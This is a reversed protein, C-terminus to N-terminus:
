LSERPPDRCQRARLVFSFPFAQDGTELRIEDSRERGATLLDQRERGRAPIQRPKKRRVAAALDFVRRDLFTERGADIDAVLFRRPRLRLGLLLMSERRREPHRDQKRRSRGRVLDRRRNRVGLIQRLSKLFVFARLPPEDPATDPAFRHAHPNREVRRADPLANRERSRAADMQASLETRRLPVTKRQSCPRERKEDHVLPASPLSGTLVFLEQELDCELERVFSAENRARIPPVLRRRIPVLPDGVKMEPIAELVRHPMRSAQDASAWFARCAATVRAYERKSRSLAAPM